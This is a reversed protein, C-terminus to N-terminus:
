WGCQGLRSQMSRMLIHLLRQVRIGEHEDAGPARMPQVVSSVIHLVHQVRRRVHEQQMSCLQIWQGEHLGCQVPLRLQEVAYLGCEARTHLAQVSARVDQGAGVRVAFISRYWAHQMHHSLTPVSVYCCLLLVVVQM